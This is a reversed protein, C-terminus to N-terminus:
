LEKHTLVPLDFTSSILDIITKSRSLVGLGMSHTFTVKHLSSEDFAQRVGPMSITDHMLIVGNEKLFPLWANYDQKVAEYTHLGDIHIIDMKHDKPWIKNQTMFDDVIVDVNTNYAGTYYTNSDTVWKFNNRIGAHDDGMFTDIGTVHGKGNRLAFAFVFTSFGFDIGLDLVEKADMQKTLWLAFREHGRWATITAFLEKNIIALTEDQEKQPPCLSCCSCSSTSQVRALCIAFLLSLIFLRM